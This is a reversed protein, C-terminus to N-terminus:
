KLCCNGSKEGPGYSTQWSWSSCYIPEQPRTTFLPPSLPNHSLTTLSPQSLPNHPLTTLSPQSPPTLSLTLPRTTLTPHHHHLTTFSPPSLSPQSFTTLAPQTHLINFLVASLPHQSPTNVTPIPLTHYSLISLPLISPPHISLNHRVIMSNDHRWCQQRLLRKGGRGRGPLFVRVGMEVGVKVEMRVGVRAGIEGGM